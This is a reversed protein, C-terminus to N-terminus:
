NVHACPSGRGVGHQCSTNREAGTHEQSPRHAGPRPPHGMAGQPTLHAGPVGGGRRRRVKPYEIYSRMKRHVLGKRVVVGTVVCTDEPRGVDPVKKVQPGMCGLCSPPRDCVHRLGGARADWVGRM